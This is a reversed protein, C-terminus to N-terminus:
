EEDDDGKKRTTQKSPLKKKIDEIDKQMDNIKTQLSDIKHELEDTSLISPQLEQISKEPEPPTTPYDEKVLRYRDIRPAEFQSFGMSKEMVINQGEIKFTVCNGPAVPYTKVIDESPVSLFGGNQIQNQQPVNMQNQYQTNQSPYFQQYQNYYAM